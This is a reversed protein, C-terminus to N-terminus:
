KPVSNYNHLCQVRITSHIITINNNSIIVIFINNLEPINSLM